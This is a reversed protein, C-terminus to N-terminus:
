GTNQCVNVWTVNFPLGNERSVLDDPRFAGVLNPLGDKVDRIYLRSYKREDNADELVIIVQANQVAFEVIAIVERVVIRRTPVKATPEVSFRPSRDSKPGRGLPSLVQDSVKEAVTVVM